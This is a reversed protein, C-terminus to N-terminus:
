KEFDDRPGDSYTQCGQYVTYIYIIKKKKFKSVIQLM